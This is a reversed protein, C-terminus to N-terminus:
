HDFGPVILLAIFCASTGLMILKQTPQKEAMPGGRMRLKLLAPDNKILYLTSYVSSGCFITLYVWAQWYRLTGAPVFLLLGMVLVLLFLAIWAKAVLNKM